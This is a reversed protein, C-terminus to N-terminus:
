STRARRLRAPPRAGADRRRKELDVVERRGGSHRATSHPPGLARAALAVIQQSVVDPHELTIIHGADDVLVHESHPLREVIEESHVPSTLIDKDGNLVLVEIEAMAALAEAKDHRNLGPVFGSIVEMRTGFIMEATLRVVGLPVPSAFSSRAVLFEQLEKGSRMVQDIFDQRSALRTLVTPGVRNVAGGLVSGLGWTIRHLGGASTAVLGVAKIRDGFMAPRAEALAMITMGGMSHGVLVIDSDEPVAECIVRYLDHGLQEIHYSSADAVGSSGHGRQDWAVVRYGAAVLARRQYVWSRLDLTYGHCLVITARPEEAMQPEDIEVHLPVGDDALVVVTRDPEVTFDLDVGLAIAHERDRWLRDVAAGAAVTLGAGALGAGIGLAARGIPNM